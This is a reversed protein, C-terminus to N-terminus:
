TALFPSKCIFHKFIERDTTATTKTRMRAKVTQEPHFIDLERIQIIAAAMGSGRLTHKRLVLSSIIPYRWEHILHDCATRLKLASSSDDLSLQSMFTIATTRLDDMQWM